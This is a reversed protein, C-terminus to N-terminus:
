WTIPYVLSPQSPGESDEDPMSSCPFLNRQKEFCKGFVKGVTEYDPALLERLGHDFYKEKIEIMILRFFEKRPGGYDAAVQPLYVFSLLHFVLAGCTPCYLGM